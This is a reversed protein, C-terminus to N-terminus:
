QPEQKIVPERKIETSGINQAVPTSEDETDEQKVGRNDLDSSHELQAPLAASSNFLAVLLALPDPISQLPQPRPSCNDRCVLHRNPQRRNGRGNGWGRVQSHSRHRRNLPPDHHQDPVQGQGQFAQNVQGQPPPPMHAPVPQAYHYYGLPVANQYVVPPPYIFPQSSPAYPFQGYASYAVVPLPPPFPVPAQGPGGGNQPHVM